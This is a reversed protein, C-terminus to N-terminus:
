RKTKPPTYKNATLSDEVLQTLVATNKAEVAQSDTVTQITQWMKQTNERMAENISQIDEKEIAAAQIAAVKAADATEKVDFFAVMGATLIGIIGMIAIVGDWSMTRQFSM